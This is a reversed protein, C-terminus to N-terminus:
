SLMIRNYAVCPCVAQLLWYSRMCAHRATRRDRSTSRPPRSSMSRSTCAPSEASDNRDITSRIISINFQGTSNFGAFSQGPYITLSPMPARLIVVNSSQIPGYLASSQDPVNWEVLNSSDIRPTSGVQTAMFYAAVGGGELCNRDLFQNDKVNFEGLGVQPGFWLARANSVLGSSYSISNSVITVSVISIM